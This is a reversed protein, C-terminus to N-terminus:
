FKDNCWPQTLKKLLDLHFLKHSIFAGKRSTADNNPTGWESKNQWMGNNVVVQKKRKNTSCHMLPSDLYKVFLNLRFLTWRYRCKKRSKTDKPCPTSDRRVESSLFVKEARAADNNLLSHGRAGSQDQWMGNDVVVKRGKTDNNPTDWESGVIVVLSECALGAQSNPNRSFPSLAVLAYYCCKEAQPKSCPAGGGSQDKWM